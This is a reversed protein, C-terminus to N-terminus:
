DESVAKILHDALRDNPLSPLGLAAREAAIDDALRRAEDLIRARDQESFNDYWPRTLLDDSIHDNLISGVLAWQMASELQAREQEKSIPTAALGVRQGRANRHANRALDNTYMSSIQNVAGAYGGNVISARLWHAAQELHDKRLNLGLYLQAKPDGNVALGQLQDLSMGAYPNDSSPTVGAIPPVFQQMLDYGRAREWAQFAALEAGEIPPWQPEHKGNLANTNFPPTVVPAAGNHQGDLLTRETLAQSQTQVLLADPSADEGSPLLIAAVVAVFLGALFIAFRKSQKTM